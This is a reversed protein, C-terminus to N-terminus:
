KTGLTSTELGINALTLKLLESDGRPIYSRPPPEAILLISNLSKAGSFSYRRRTISVDKKAHTATEHPTTSVSPNSCFRNRNAARASILDQCHGQVGRSGM